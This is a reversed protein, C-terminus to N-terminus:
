CTVIDPSALARRRDGEQSEEIHFERDGIAALPQWGVSEAVALPPAEEGLARM